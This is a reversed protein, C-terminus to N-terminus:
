VLGNAGEAQPVANCTCSYRDDPNGPAPCNCDPGEDPELYLFDM